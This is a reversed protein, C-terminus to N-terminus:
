PNDVSKTSFNRRGTPPNAKILLDELTWGGRIILERSDEEGVYYFVREALKRQVYNSPDWIGNGNKDEIIRLFYTGPELLSFAFTTGENIILEYAVEQKSNLLQLVYPPSAGEILGSVGDALSNRKLKRYNAALEKENFLGEIDQFTSDAVKLTFIDADLSDPISIRLRLLDRKSSDAFSLM